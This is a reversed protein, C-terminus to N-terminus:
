QAPTGTEAPRGHMLSALGSCISAALLCKSAVNVGVNLATTTLSPQSPMRGMGPGPESTMLRMGGEVLAPIILYLAFLLYSSRFLGPKTVQAPRFAIVAFMCVVYAVALWIESMSDFTRGFMSQFVNGMM